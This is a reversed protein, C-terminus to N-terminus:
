SMRAAIVCVDDDRRSRALRWGVIEDCVAQPSLDPLGEAFTRLDEMGSDFSRARTEILGDTYFVLTTGPRLVKTEQHYRWGPDVGIMVDSGGSTALYGFEGIRCRLPQPHGANSRVLTREDPNWVAVIVTATEGDGLRCQMRNLRSLVQAPSPDEDAFARVANRLQAMTAVSHVGHGAVDGIVLCTGGDVPFADYWDGGMPADSAPLYSAAVELHETLPLSAPLFAEQLVRADARAASAKSPRPEAKARELAEAALGAILKLRSMQRTTFAQPKAWGLGIAGITTGNSATLPMSATASLGAAVTDALLLPFNSGIAELTPLLVPHGTLIAECLPTPEAVGFDAWRAAIDAELQQGHVVTVRNSRNDFTALNATTAGATLAGCDAVASAVEAPTGAGSLATALRWVEADDFGVQEAADITM